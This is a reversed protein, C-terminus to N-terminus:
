TAQTQMKLKCLMRFMYDAERIASNHYTFKQLIQM